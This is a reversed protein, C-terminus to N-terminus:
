RASFGKCGVVFEFTVDFSNMFAFPWMLASNACFGEFGIRVELYVDFSNM